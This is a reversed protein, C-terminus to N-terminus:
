LYILNGMIRVSFANLGELLTLCNLWHDFTYTTHLIAQEHHAEFCDKLLKDSRKVIKYASGEARSPGPPIM